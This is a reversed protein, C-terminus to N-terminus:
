AAEQKQAKRRAWGARIAAARKALIEPDSNIRDLSRLSSARVNWHMEPPKEGRAIRTLRPLLRERIAYVNRRTLGMELAVGDTSYGRVRLSLYRIDEEAKEARQAELLPALSALYDHSWPPEPGQGQTYDRWELWEGERPYHHYLWRRLWDIIAHKAAIFPLGDGHPERTLGCIATAGEQIADEWDEATFIPRGKLVCRAAKDALDLISAPDNM